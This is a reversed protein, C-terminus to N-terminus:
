RLVGVVGRHEFRGHSTPVVLEIHVQSLLITPTDRAHVNDVSVIFSTALEGHITGRLAHADVDHLSIQVSKLSLGMRAGVALTVGDGLADSTHLLLANFLIALIGVTRTAREDVSEFLEVDLGLEEASAVELFEPSNACRQRLKPTPDHHLGVTAVIEAVEIWLDGSAHADDEGVPVIRFALLGELKVLTLRLAVAIIDAVHDLIKVDLSPTAVLAHRGPGFRLRLGVGIGLGVRIRSRIRGFLNQHYFARGLTKVIAIIGFAVM